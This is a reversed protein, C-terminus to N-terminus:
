ILKQIDMLGENKKLLEKQIMMEFVLNHPYYPKCDLKLKSYDLQVTRLEEKRMDEHAMSVVKADVTNEKSKAMEEIFKPHRLM